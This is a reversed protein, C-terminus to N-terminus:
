RGAAGVSIRVASRGSRWTPSEMGVRRRKSPRANILRKAGRHLWQRWGKALGISLDPPRCVSTGGHDKSGLAGTSNAQIKVRGTQYVREPADGQKSDPWARWVGGRTQTGRDTFLAFAFRWVGGRTQTGRGKNSGIRASEGPARSRFHEGANVPELGYIIAPHRLGLVGAGVVRAGHSRVVCANENM